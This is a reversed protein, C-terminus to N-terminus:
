MQYDYKIELFKCLETIWREKNRLILLTKAKNRAISNM